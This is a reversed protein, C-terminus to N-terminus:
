RPYLYRRALKLAQHLGHLVVTRLWRLGVQVVSVRRGRRPDLHGRRGSKISETGVSAAQIMALALVLLLRSAHVPDTVASEDWGLAGSKDDRFSQEVWMRKAYARAHRLRGPEDVLLVWPEKMGEEWTAVVGAGRWGAAKFAEAEGHWRDGVRRALQGAACETGGPLRVKVHRQLRLVYHWGSQQCFDVLVPWALGRDALLVVECGGPLCGRVQRLLSRVLKPLPQPPDDPRYCVWALPLARHAYAVRVCMARLDNARPTEDLVLLVTRGAWHTTLSRALERQAHRPRLRPNDLLREFRRRASAPRARTPVHPSVRNARCDGALAVAFSLDALAHTQHRHRHPMLGAVCRRWDHVIPLASM